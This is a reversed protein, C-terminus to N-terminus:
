SSFLNIIASWVDAAHELDFVQALVDPSMSKNLFGLVAQNRSNWASYAPNPVTKKEGDEAELTKAPAPDSGDLLGMVEAGRLSLLIQAKWILYNERTLKESPPSRLAAALSAM